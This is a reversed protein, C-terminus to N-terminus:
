GDDRLPLSRLNDAEAEALRLERRLRRRDRMLKLVLLTASLAGLIWGAALSLVFAQSKPIEYEGVILNLNVLGPNLWAFAAALLIAVVFVATFLVTRIM